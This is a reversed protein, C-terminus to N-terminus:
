FPYCKPKCTSIDSLVSIELENHPMIRLSKQQPIKLNSKLGITFNLIILFNPLM